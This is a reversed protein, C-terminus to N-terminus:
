EVEKIKLLLEKHTKEFFDKNKGFESFKGSSQFNELKLQLSELYKNNLVRATMSLTDLNSNLGQFKAAYGDFYFLNEEDFIYRIWTLGDFIDAGSFYYLPTAITDLSGFIHIPKEIRNEDMHKRLRAINLMRKWISEGIEKETFGIIDYNNLLHINKIIEDFDIYPNKKSVPKFIMEKLVGDLGKFLKDAKEIQKKFSNRRSPHDYSIITMPKIKQYKRVYKCVTKWHLDQNWSIIKKNKIIGLNSISRCISCEYGGSDIFLLTPFTLKPFGKVYHLDFASVLIPGKIFEDMTNILKDIDANMSSNINVLSSFAPILMPTTGVEGWNDLKLQKKRALM